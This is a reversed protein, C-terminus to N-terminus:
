HNAEQPAHAQEPVIASIIRDFNRYGAEVTRARWKEHLLLKFKYIYLKNLDFYNGFELEDLQKWRLHDLSQERVAPNKHSYIEAVALSAHVPQCQSAARGSRQQVRREEMARRLEADWQRWRAATSRCPFNFKGGPQLTTANLREFDGRNLHQRCLAMFQELDVVPTEGWRLSPLSSILYYYQEM